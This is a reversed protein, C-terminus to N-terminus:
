GLFSHFLANVGLVIGNKDYLFSLFANDNIVSIAKMGFSTGSIMMVILGLCWIILLGEALGLIAGAIKNVGGIIPMRNIARSLGLLIRIVIYILVLLIVYSIINVAIGTLRNQLYGTFNNVQLEIYEGVTNKESIDERM